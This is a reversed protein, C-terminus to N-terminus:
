LSSGVFGRLEVVEEPTLHHGGTHLYDTVKSGGSVFREVLTHMDAELLYPDQEGSSIFVQEPTDEPDKDIDLLVPHLLAYKRLLNPYSYALNQAINAGNSFGVVCIDRFAIDHKLAIDEVFTALKKTEEELSDYDLKGESFRAFFRNLGNEDINGRLSIIGYERDLEKALPVLDLEDAGTGHLLLFHKSTGRRPKVYHYKFGLEDGDDRELTPLVAEIKDRIPEYREPLQLKTGLKELEEDITFGPEDTAIEFLIGSPHRFYVSHFYDRDIVPTVDYGHMRLEQQVDVHVKDDPVSFAVHHISGYGQQASENKDSLTKLDVHAARNGSKVKYRVTNAEIGIQKYGLLELLNTLKGSKAEYLRVGFFGRIAYEHSVVSDWPYEFAEIDDSTAILQIPMKDPDTFSLVEHAFETTLKSKVGFRGLREQWYSMSGEPVSYQVTRAEGYGRVANNLRRFPFFTLATGPEGAENGFYLHYTDPADFNVTKKVFRLGLVEVYFQYTEVADKCIATIHHIGQTM